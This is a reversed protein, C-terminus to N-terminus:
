VKCRVSFYKPAHMLRSGYWSFYTGDVLLIDTNPLIEKYKAIHKEKFPFPESSLLLTSPSQQALLDATIEPYRTLKSFVNEYGAYKMMNNIFTDGGAVMIPDDWILYAATRLDPPRNLSAFESEVHEALAHAQVQRDLLTGLHTIMDLADALDAINYVCVPFEKMLDEVVSRDNEEKNAIILDPALEKVLDLHISKTGGVKPIHEIKGKPEICFKTRGVLKDGCNM